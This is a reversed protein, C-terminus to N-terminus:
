GLPVMDEGTAGQSTTFSAEPNPSAWRNGWQKLALLVPLLDRGKETLEYEQYPSGDCSPRLELIGCGVLRKLRASLINRAAGLSEQLEGFRRKGMAVDRIILLSWWEGVQDLSRAIPCLAGDLSKRKMNGGFSASKSLVCVVMSAELVPSAVDTESNFWLTLVM